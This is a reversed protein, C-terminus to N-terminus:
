ASLRAMKGILGTTGIGSPRGTEDQAGVAERREAGVRRNARSRV